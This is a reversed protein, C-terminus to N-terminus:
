RGISDCTGHAGTSNQAAEDAAATYDSVRSPEPESAPYWPMAYGDAVQNENIDELGPNIVYALSRGYRDTRDSVPDYTLIVTSDEPLMESLNDTAEQAGCEPEAGKHYNMEPADIGLLRVVHEDGADNTAPLTDTPEVAITDGDIVRIVHTEISEPEGGESSSSSSAPPASPDLETAWQCGTLTLMLCSFLVIVSPLARSHAHM